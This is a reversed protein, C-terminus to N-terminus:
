KKKQLYFALSHFFLLCYFSLTFLLLNIEGGSDLIDEYDSHEILSAHAEEVGRTVELTNAWPLKEVIMMLGLEDDIVADGM